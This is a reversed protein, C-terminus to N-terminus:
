DRRIESKITELDIFQDALNMLGDAIMGRIGVLEIQVGKTTAINAAYALNDDHSVLVITQCQEAFMLMDIAIEVALNAHRSGDPAVTLEKRIVRYGHNQMWHLFAQQKQNGSSIGTYFFAQLLRRGQNLRVLLREYDVEFGLSAAAYFLSAGDILIVVSRRDSASM